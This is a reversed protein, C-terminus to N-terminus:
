HHTHRALHPPNYSDIVQGTSDDKITWSDKGKIPTILPIHARSARLIPNTCDNYYLSVMIKEQHHNVHNKTSAVPPTNCLFLVERLLNQIM